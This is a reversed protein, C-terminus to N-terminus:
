PALVVTLAVLSQMGVVEVRVEMVGLLVQILHVVEEVV